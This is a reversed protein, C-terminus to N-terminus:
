HVMRSPEASRDRGRSLFAVTITAHSCSVTRLVDAVRYPTAPHLTGIIIPAVAALEDSVWRDQIVVFRWSQPYAVSKAGVAASMLLRLTQQDIVEPDNTHVADHGHVVDATAMSQMTNTM